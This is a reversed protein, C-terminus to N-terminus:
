GELLCAISTKQWKGSDLPYPASPRPPEDSQYGQFVSSPPPLDLHDQIRNSVSEELPEFSDMMTAPIQDQESLLSPPGIGSTM